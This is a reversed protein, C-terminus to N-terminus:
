PATALGGSTYRKYPTTSIATDPMEVGFSVPIGHKSDMQGRETEFGGTNFVQYWIIMETDDLNQFALMVRVEQGVLPPIYTDQKTVGAGATTLTGGNAALKWNVSHIHSMNFAVTGAKGTVVSFIPYPSEAVKIESSDTSESYTGGADTAGVEAWGTPYTVILKSETPAVLTPVATGLAAWRFNGPGYKISVPSIVPTAM